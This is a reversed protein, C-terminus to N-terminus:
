APYAVATGAGLALWEADPLTARRWVRGGAVVVTIRSQGAALDDPPGPLGDLDARSGSLDHGDVDLRWLTRLDGDTGVVLATRDDQWGVPGVDRLGPAVPRLGGVVATRGPVIRGLFLRGGAVVLARSGEPSLRVDSLVGSLGEVRVPTAPGRGGEAPVSVLERGGGVSRVVWVSEGDGSWSPTSLREAEVSLRKDESSRPGVLLVERGDGKRRVGAVVGTRSVAVARLEDVDFPTTAQRTPPEEVDVGVLDGDRVVYLLPDESPQVPDLAAFASRDLPGAPRGPIPLTRNEVRLDVRSIGLGPETLTRVIQAAMAVRADGAVTGAERSLDVTAVGAVVRPRGLSRTGEPVASRVAPALWSSPGALLVDLTEAVAARSNPFFLLDPVLRARRADPFYLVSRRYTNGFRTESLIRQPPPRSIRWEGDDRTLELELVQRGAAAPTYLGAASVTAQRELTVRVVARLAGTSDVEIQRDGSYVLVGDAPWTASRALYARADDVDAAQADLFGRVVEEPDAGVRLPLTLPRVEDGRPGGVDAPGSVEREIVLGGDRPVGGCGALVLVFGALWAHRAPRRPARAPRTRSAV